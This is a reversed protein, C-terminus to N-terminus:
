DLEMFWGKWTRANKELEFMSWTPKINKRKIYIGKSKIELVGVKTLLIRSADPSHLGIVHPDYLLDVLEKRTVFDGISKKSICELIIKWISKKM